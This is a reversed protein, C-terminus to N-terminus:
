GGNRVKPDHDGSQGLVHTASITYDYDTTNNNADIAQRGNTGFQTQATFEDTPLGSIGDVSAVHEGAVWHIATPSDTITVDPATPKNTADDWTVVIEKIPTPM